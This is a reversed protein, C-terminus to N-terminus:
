HSFTWTRNAFFNWFMAVATATALGYITDLNLMQPSTIIFFISNNIVLGVLAVLLFKLAERRIQPNTSRFTWSRNMAYSSSASFVFSMAKAIQAGVQGAPRLSLHFVYFLAWDLATNIAGVIAFKVFQRVAPKDRM